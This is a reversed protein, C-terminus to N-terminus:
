SHKGVDGSGAGGFRGSYMCCVVWMVFTAEDDIVKACCFYFFGTAQRDGAWNRLSRYRLSCWM